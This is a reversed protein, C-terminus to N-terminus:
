LVCRVDVVPQIAELDVRREYPVMGVTDAEAVEVNASGLIAKKVARAEVRSAAWDVNTGEVVAEGATRIAVTENEIEGIAWEHIPRRKEIWSPVYPQAQLEGLIQMKISPRVIEVARKESASM